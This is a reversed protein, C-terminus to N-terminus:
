RFYVQETLKRNIGSYFIRLKEFLNENLVLHDRERLFRDRLLFEARVLLKLTNSMIKGQKHCKFFGIRQLDNEKVSVNVSTSFMLIKNLLVIKHLQDQRRRLVKYDSVLPRLVEYDQESLKLSTMLVSQKKLCRFVDLSSFSKNVSSLYFVQEEIKFLATDGITQALLNPGSM